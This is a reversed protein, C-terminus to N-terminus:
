WEGSGIGVGELHFKLDMAGCLCYGRHGAPFGGRIPDSSFPKKEPPPGAMLSSYSTHELSPGGGGIDRMDVEVGQSSGGRASFM